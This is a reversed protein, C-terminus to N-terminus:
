SLTITCCLATSLTKGPMPSLTLALSIPSVTQRFNQYQQRKYKWFRRQRPSSM